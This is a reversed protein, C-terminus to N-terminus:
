VGPEQGGACCLNEPLDILILNDGLVFVPEFLYLRIPSIFNM